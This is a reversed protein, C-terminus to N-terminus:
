GVIRGGVWEKAVNEGVKVQVALALYIEFSGDFDPTAIKLTRLRSHIGSTMSTTM